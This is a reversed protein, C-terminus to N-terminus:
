KIRSEEDTIELRRRDGEFEITIKTQDSAPIKDNYSKFM